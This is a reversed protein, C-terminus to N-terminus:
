RLFLFYVAILILILVLIAPVTLKRRSREPPYPSRCCPKPMKEFDGQPDIGPFRRDIRFADPTKEFDGPPTYEPSSPVPSKDFSDNDMEPYNRAPCAQVTFKNFSRNYDRLEPNVPSSDSTFARGCVSCFAKQLDAEEKGCIPCIKRSSSSRIIHRYQMPPDFVGDDSVQAGCVSCASEEQKLFYGCYPCYRGARNKIVPTDDNEKEIEAGCRTCVKEKDDLANGCIPCYKM